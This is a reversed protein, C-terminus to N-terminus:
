PYRNKAMAFRYAFLCILFFAISILTILLLRNLVREQGAAIHDVVAVIDEPSKTVGSVADVLKTLEITAQTVESTLARYESIDVPEAPENGTDLTAAIRESSEVIARLDSLILQSEPSATTFDSFLAERQRSLGEMFQDIVALREESLDEFVRVLQEIADIFRESDELMQTVQPGGLLQLVSSEMRGSVIGPARQTYFLAREAYDQFEEATERARRVEKLLGGSRKIASLRAARQSSFQDMRIWWPNVQGPHESRYNRIMTLMDTQQESTLVVNALDWIDKELARSADLLPQGIEEGFQEPVWHEEIVMRGLSTLVMMDLLNTVANSGIAIEVSTVRSMTRWYQALQFQDPTLPYERMRDVAISMRAHYRDAFRRVQDDLQQRSTIAGPQAPTSIPSTVVKETQEQAVSHGPLVALLVALMVLTHSTLIKM